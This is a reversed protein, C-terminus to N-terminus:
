QSEAPSLLPVRPPFKSRSPKIIFGSRSKKGGCPVYQSRKANFPCRFEHAALGPTAIATQNTIARNKNRGFDRQTARNFPNVQFRLSNQRPQSMVPSVPEPLVVEPM